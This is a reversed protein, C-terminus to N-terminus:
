LSAALAARFFGGRMALPQLDVDSQGSGSSLQLSDDTMYGYGGEAQLWMRWFRDPGIAKTWLPLAYGASLDAAFLWRSKTLPAPASLDDVEARVDAIGPAARLFAYGWRRLQVRGELPVTVRDLGLSASDGRAIAGSEGHDWAVGLAFSLAGRAYLTRSAALSLEGFYDRTSFPNLGPSTVFSGRYGLEFRGVTEPRLLEKTSVFDPNPDANAPVALGLIALIVLAATM